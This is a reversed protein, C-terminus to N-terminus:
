NGHPYRAMKKIQHKQLICGIINVIGKLPYALALIDRFESNGYRRERMIVPVEMIRLGAYHASLLLQNPDYIQTRIRYGLLDIARPGYCRFGSTVDTLKTGILFSDLIAFSKIAVRRFVFSQFGKKDIFRSGIVFDAFGNVIPNIIKHLEDAVHQGDGDFQILISYNNEYAYRFYTQLTGFSSGSNVCHRLTPINKKRCLIATDDISCNDVVIIDYSNRFPELEELTSLINKEENYTIVAVLPKKM